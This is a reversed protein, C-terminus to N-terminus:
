NGDRSEAAFQRPSIGYESKFARYFNAYDGFGCFQYIDGPASGGAIMERALMLRRFIVYRYVSTGVRHSFEHSLHYKSVFFESALSELTINERYHIGIYALVQTVLDPDEMKRIRSTTQLALRNVEVLFQQLLGRAYIEGGPHRGRYERNLRSLTQGLSVQQVRPPRLLNIPGTLENGFCASLDMSPVSLSQLYAKDIWLVIREYDVDPEIAPQHLEQPAILLLDGSELRYTRGEVRYDVNGSLFFFVEYFDHYHLAVSEPRKDRYHFVEFTRNSMTQRSDFRQTNTSM